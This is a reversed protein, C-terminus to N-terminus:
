YYYLYSTLVTRVQMFGATGVFFAKVDKQVDLQEEQAASPAELGYEDKTTASPAGRGRGRHGGRGRGRGRGRGPM